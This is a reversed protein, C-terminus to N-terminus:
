RLIQDIKKTVKKPGVQEERHYCLTVLLSAALGPSLLLRFGVKREIQNITEKSADHAVM